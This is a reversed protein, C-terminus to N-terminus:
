KKMVIGVDLSFVWSTKWWLVSLTVAFCWPYGHYKALTPLIDHTGTINHWCQYLMVPPKEVHSVPIVQITYITFIIKGFREMTVNSWLESIKLSASRVWCGAPPMQAIRTPISGSASVSGKLVPTLNLLAAWEAGTELIWGNRTSPISSCSVM